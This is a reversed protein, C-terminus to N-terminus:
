SRMLSLYTEKRIKNGQELYKKQQKRSVDYLRNMCLRVIILYLYLKQTDNTLNAGEAANAVLDSLPASLM